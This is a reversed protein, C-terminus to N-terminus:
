ADNDDDFSTSQQRYPTAHRKMLLQKQSDVIYCRTIQAVLPTMAATLVVSGFNRPSM